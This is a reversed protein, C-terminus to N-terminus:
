ANEIIKGDRGVSVDKGIRRERGNPLKQIVCFVSPLLVPLQGSFLMERVTNEVDASKLQREDNFEVVDM